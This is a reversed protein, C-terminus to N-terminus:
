SIALYHEQKQTNEKEHTELYILEQNRKIERILREVKM